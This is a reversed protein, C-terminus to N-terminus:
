AGLAQMWVPQAPKMGCRCEMLCLLIYKCKYTAINTYRNIYTNIIIDICINIYTSKKIHMCPFTKICKCKYVYVYTYVNTYM